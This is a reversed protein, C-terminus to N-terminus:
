GESLYSDALAESLFTIYSRKGMTSEKLLGKLKEPELKAVMLAAAFYTNLKTFPQGQQVIPQPFLHCSAVANLVESFQEDNFQKAEQTSSWEGLDWQSCKLGGPGPLGFIGLYIDATDMAKIRYKLRTHIPVLKEFDLAHGQMLRSIANHLASNSAITDRGPFSSLYSEAQGVVVSRAASLKGTSLGAISGKWIEGSGVAGGPLQSLDDDTSAQSLDRALTTPDQAIKRLSDWRTGYYSM